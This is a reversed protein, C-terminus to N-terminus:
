LFLLLHRREEHSRHRSHAHRGHSIHGRKGIFAVPSYSPGSCSCVPPVHCTVTVTWRPPWVMAVFCSLTLAVPPM